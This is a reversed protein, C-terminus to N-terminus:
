KSWVAMGRYLAINENEIVQWEALPQIRSTFAPAFHSEAQLVDNIRSDNQLFPDGHRTAYINTLHICVGLRYM